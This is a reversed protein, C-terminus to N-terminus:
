LRKTHDAKAGSTITSGAPVRGGLALDCRWADRPPGVGGTATSTSNSARSSSNPM